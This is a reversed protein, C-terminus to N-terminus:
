TTFSTILSSSSPNVGNAFGPSLNTIASARAEFTNSAAFTESKARSASM